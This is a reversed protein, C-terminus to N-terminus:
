AHERPDHDHNDNRQNIQNMALVPGKDIVLDLGDLFEPIREQLVAEEGASFKGLVFDKLAMAAPKPAGIGIRLRLFTGELHRLLDAVGNHGGDSGGASLKCRGTPIQYEDFVVVIASAPVRFYRALAAVSRGSENMYTHPKLVRITCGGSDVAAVEGLFRSDHKWAAGHRRVWADVVRFGVNHRTYRYDEGPNGLGAIVTVPM